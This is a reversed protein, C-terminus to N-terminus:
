LFLPQSPQMAFNKGSVGAGLVRPRPYLDGYPNQFPLCPMTFCRRGVM